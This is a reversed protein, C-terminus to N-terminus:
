IYISNEYGIDQLLESIKEAHAGGGYFIINKMSDEGFNRLMRAVTYGDLFSAVFDLLSSFLFHDFKSRRYLVHQFYEYRNRIKRKIENFLENRIDIDTINNIQKIIKTEELLIDLNEFKSDINGLVTLFNEELEEKSKGASSLFDDPNNGYAQMVSLIDNFQKLLGKVRIDTWHIRVNQYPCISKDTSYCNELLKWLKVLQLTDNESNTQHNPEVELMFDIVYDSPQKFLEDFFHYVDIANSQCKTKRHYDYFLYIIRDGDESILKEVAYPGSIIYKDSTEQEM